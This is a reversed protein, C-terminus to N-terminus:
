LENTEAWESVMTSDNIDQILLYELREAIKKVNSKRTPGESQQQNEAARERKWQMWWTGSVEVVIASNSM